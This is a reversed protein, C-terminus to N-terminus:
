SQTEARRALEKACESITPLEARSYRALMGAQSALHFADSSGLSWAVFNIGELKVLEPVSTVLNALERLSPDCQELTAIIPAVHPNRLLHVALAEVAGDYSLSRSHTIM